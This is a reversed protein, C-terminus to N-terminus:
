FFIVWNCFYAYKQNPFSKWLTSSLQPGMFNSTQFLQSHLGLVYHYLIQPYIFIQYILTETNM